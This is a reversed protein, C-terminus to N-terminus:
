IKELYSFHPISDRKQMNLVKIGNLIDQYQDDCQQLLNNNSPTSSANKTSVVDIANTTTVPQVGDLATQAEDSPTQVINNCNM